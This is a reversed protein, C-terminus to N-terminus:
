LLVFIVLSSPSLVSLIMPFPWTWTLSGGEEAGQLTGRGGGLAEGGVESVAEYVQRQVRGCGGGFAGTEKGMQGEPVSLNGPEVPQSHNPSNRSRERNSHRNHGM